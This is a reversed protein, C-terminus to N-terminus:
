TPTSTRGAASLRRRLHAPADHQPQRGALLRRRREDAQLRRAAGPRYAGSAPRPLPGALARALVDQDGPGRPDGRGARGQLARRPERYFRIADQATGSRAASRTAPPSSRRADAERDERSRGDHVARRPRFRLVLRERDVPGITVKTDPWLEQVARAMIHAADHRILELTDKDKATLIELRTDGSCRSPSTPWAGTSGRRWRRSAWRSRSTRRWRAARPGPPM